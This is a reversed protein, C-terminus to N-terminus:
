AVVVLGQMGVARHLGVNCYYKAVGAQDFTHSFTTGSCRMGSDFANFGPVLFEAAEADNDLGATVSHCLNAIRWVVTDGPKITAVAPTFTCAPGPGGCSAVITVTAHAGPAAEGPVALPALASASFPVLFLSLALTLLARRM